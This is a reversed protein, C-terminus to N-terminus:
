SHATLGVKYNNNIETSTLARNYIRPEDIRETYQTNSNSSYRGIEIGGTSTPIAMTVTNTTDSQGNLYLRIVSGDYTAAIHVWENQNYNTSQVLTDGIYLRFANTVKFLRFSKGTSSSWRSVIGKSTSTDTFIWASVTIENTIDLTPNSKEAYGSGDLNFANQRLRLANGLIDYGKNTPNQILTIEPTGGKAWDMMGLQPITDQAPTYTAGTIVGASVEKASINSVSGEFGGGQNKVTLNRLTGTVKLVESYTNNGTRATGENGSVGLKVDGSVWDSVTFTLLYTSGVTLKDAQTLYSSSGGTVSDAKNAGYSWGVGLNWDSETAFGGNVILDSGLPVVSNYAFSGDGESLAWYGKLDAAELDTDPNDIALLNPNNYDFAVDSATWAKNYIQFDSGKGEVLYQTTNYGAFLRSVKLNPSIPTITDIINGDIYLSITSGNSVFVLRKYGSYSDLVYDFEYWNESNSSDRFFVKDNASSKLGINDSTGDGIIFSYSSSVYDGLWIACTWITGNNNVDSGLDVYDNVGDFSLAKGTFLKANNTNPSKDKVFQTAEKFSVSTVTAVTASSARLYIQPSTLGDTNFYLETDFSGLLTGGGSGDRWRLEIDGVVGSVNIKYSNNSLLNYYVGQGGGSTTFGNSIIDTSGSNVWNTFDLPNILESGIVESKTFNLWLQLGRKVIGKFVGSLRNLGLGLGLM